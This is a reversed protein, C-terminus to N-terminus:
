NSLVDFKEDMEIFKKTGKLGDYSLEGARAPAPWRPGAGTLSAM